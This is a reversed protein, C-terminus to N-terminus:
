PLGFETAVIDACFANTTAPFDFAIRAPSAVTFNPPLSTLPTKTQIRVTVKGGQQTVNFAEISNTQSYATGPGAFWLAAVFLASFARAFSLGNIM